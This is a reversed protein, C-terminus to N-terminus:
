RNQKERILREAEAAIADILRQEFDDKEPQQAADSDPAVEEAAIDVAEGPAPSPESPPDNVFITSYNGGDPQDAVFKIQREFFVENLTALIREISDTNLKAESPAVSYAVPRPHNGDFDLFIRSCTAEADTLPRKGILFFEEGAM